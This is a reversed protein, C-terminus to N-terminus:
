RTVFMVKMVVMGIAMIIVYAEEKPRGEDRREAASRKRRTTERTTGEEKKLHKSTYSLSGRQLSDHHVNYYLKM